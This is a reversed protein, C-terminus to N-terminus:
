PSDPTISEIQRTLGDMTNNISYTIYGFVTDNSGLQLANTTTGTCSEVTSGSIDISALGSTTAEINIVGGESSNASFHTFNCDMILLYSDLAYIAAASNLTVSAGNKDEYAGLSTKMYNNKLEVEYLMLTGSNVYILPNNKVEPTSDIWQGDLTISSLDLTVGMRVEIMPGTITGSTARLLSINGNGEIKINKDIVLTETITITNSITITDDASANAIAQVLQEQTSIGGTTASGTSQLSITNPTIDVNERTFTSVTKFTDSNNFRYQVGSALGLSGYPASNTASSACAITSNSITINGGAISVTANDTANMKINTITSDLINLTGTSYIAGGNLSIEKYGNLDYMINNQLISSQLTLTGENFIFPNEQGEDSNQGDLTINQLTLNGSNNVDFMPNTIPETSRLLKGSSSGDLVIEKNITITNTITIEQAITLIDGSQAQAIAEILSTEDTIEIPAAVVSGSEDLIYGENALTFFDAINGTFGNKTIIGEPTSNSTVGVTISPKNASATISSEATLTIRPYSTSSGSFYIETAAFNQGIILSSQIRSQYLWIDAAGAQSSTNGSFSVNNLTTNGSYIFIGGTSTDSTNNGNKLEVKNLTLNGSTDVLPESAYLGKGDLTITNSGDGLTLDGETKVDFFKNTFNSTREITLDKLPIIETTGTIEISSTAKMTYLGSSDPTGAIYIANTTTSDSVITVLDAWTTVPNTQSGLPATTDPVLSPTLDIPNDEAKVVIWDSEDAYKIGNAIGLLEVKVKLETGVEVPEFPLSVQVGSAARTEKTQLTSGDQLELWATINWDVGTVSRSVRSSTGDIVPTVFSVSFNNEKKLLVNNCGITLIAVILGCLM